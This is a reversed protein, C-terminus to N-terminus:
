RSPESGGGATEDEHMERFIRDIRRRVDRELGELSRSGEPLCMWCFQVAQRLHTDAAGPGLMRRMKVGSRPDDDPLLM